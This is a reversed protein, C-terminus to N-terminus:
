INSLTRFHKQIARTYDNYSCMLKALYNELDSLQNNKLCKQLIGKRSCPIYDQVYIWGFYRICFNRLFLSSERKIALFLLFVRACFCHFKWALDIREILIIGHIQTAHFAELCELLCSSSIINIVHKEKM